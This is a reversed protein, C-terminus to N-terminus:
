KCTGPGAVKVWASGDYWCLARSTDNYMAGLAVGTVPRTKRPAIRVMGEGTVTLEIAPTDTRDITFTGGLPAGAEWSSTAGAITFRVLQAVAGKLHLKAEPAAIGLGVDGDPDIELSSSPADSRVRVPITSANGVDRLFFGYENAAVDWTYPMWGGGAQELRIAPTNSDVLHVTSAPTLTGLGLNDERLVLANTRANALVSVPIRFGTDNSLMFRELGGSGSDNAALSWDNTTFGTTTSTDVFAIRTNNEKLRITDFDFVEGNVCDFGVCLSSQFIADDTQVVDAPRLAGDIDDRGRDLVDRAPQRPARVREAGPPRGNRDPKASAPLAGAVGATLAIGVALTVLRRIRRPRTQM